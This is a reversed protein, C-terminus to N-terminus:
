YLYLYFGVNQKYKSNKAKNTSKKVISNFKIQREETKESKSLKFFILM